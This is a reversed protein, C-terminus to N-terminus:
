KKPVIHYTHVEPEDQPKNHPKPENLGDVFASVIDSLITDTNTGLSPSMKQKVNKVDRSYHKAFLMSLLSTLFLFSFCIATAVINSIGEDILFTYFGFVGAIVCAAFLVGGVITAFLGKRINSALGSLASEDPLIQGALALGIQKILTSKQM